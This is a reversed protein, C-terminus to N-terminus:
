KLQVAELTMYIHSCLVNGSFENHMFMELQKVKRSERALQLLRGRFFASAVKTEYSM